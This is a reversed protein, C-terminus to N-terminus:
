SEHDRHQSSPGKDSVLTIDTHRNWNHWLTINLPGGAVYRGPESVLTIKVLRVILKALEAGFGNQM